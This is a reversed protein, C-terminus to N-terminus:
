RMLRFEWSNKIKDLFNSELSVLGESKRQSRKKVRHKILEQGDNM